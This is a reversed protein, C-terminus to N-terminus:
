YLGPFDRMTVRVPPYPMADIPPHGIVGLVVVDDGSVSRLTLNTWEFEVKDPDSALIIQVTSTSPGDMAEIAEVISLDLNAIELRGAGPEDSDGPVTINFPFSLFTQGNSVLDRDDNCVRITEIAEHEITLLAIVVEDPELGLLARIALASPGPIAYLCLWNIAYDRAISTSWDCVQDGAAAVTKYQGSVRMSTLTAGTDALDSYVASWAGETADPDGTVAGATEHAAFSFITEGAAIASAALSADTGNGTAGNGFSRFAITDGSGPEVRYIIAAKSGVDPSFNVTVSGAALTATVECTFIGLSVGANAAGPDYTTIAIEDYVNGASDTVSAIAAAGGSGANDAAVAVVLWDGLAATVTTVALTPGSVISDASGAQSISLAM